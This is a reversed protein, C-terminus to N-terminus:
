LLFTFLSLPFRFFLTCYVINHLSTFPVSSTIWLPHPAPTVAHSPLVFFYHLSGKRFSSYDDYDDYDDYDVYDDGDDDDDDDDDDHYM